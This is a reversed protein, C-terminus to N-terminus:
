LKELITTYEHMSLAVTRCPGLVSVLRYEQIKFIQGLSSQVALNLVQVQGSVQPQIKNQSYLFFPVLFSCLRHLLILSIMKKIGRM